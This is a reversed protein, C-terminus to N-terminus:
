DMLKALLESLTKTQRSTLKVGVADEIAPAYISWMRRRLKKGAETITLRQGRGDDECTERKLHGSKEIREILRSVGYQKLMLKSELEYPRLGFDGAHELELLVDYWILPPLEENRLANEVFSFTSQHARVLRAWATITIETPKRMSYKVHLHM